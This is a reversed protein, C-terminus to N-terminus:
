SHCIWAKFQVLTKNWAESGSGRLKFCSFTSIQVLIWTGSSSTNGASNLLTAPFVPYQRYESLFQYVTAKNPSFFFLHHCGSLLHTDLDIFRRWFISIRSGMLWCLKQFKQLLNPLLHQSQLIAFEIKTISSVPFTRWCVFAAHINQYGKTANEYESYFM